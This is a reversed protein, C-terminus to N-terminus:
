ARRAAAARGKPRPPPLRLGNSRAVSRLLFPGLDSGESAALHRLQAAVRPPALFRLETSGRRPSAKPPRGTLKKAERKERRALAAAFAPDRDREERIFDDLSQNGTARLVM